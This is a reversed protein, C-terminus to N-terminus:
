KKRAPITHNPRKREPGKLTRNAKNAQNETERMGFLIRLFRVVDVGYQSLM